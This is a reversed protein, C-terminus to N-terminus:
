PIRGENPNRGAFGRSEVTLTGTMGLAAHPDCQFRYTGPGMAVTVDATEGEAQLLRTPAPLGTAGPNGAAPFSANHVGTVLTFRLVDGARATVTEPDFRNGAEDTIMRVVIVDGTRAGEGGCGAAFSALGIGFAGLLTRLQM